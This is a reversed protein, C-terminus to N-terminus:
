PPLMRWHVFLTPHAKAFGKLWKNAKRYSGKLSKLTRRAWNILAGNLLRLVAHLASKHYRGYYNIWGRVKPDCFVAIDQLTKDSRLRVGWKRITENIAKKAKRSIAPTFSTFLKGRKNMAMRPKFTYGLFDFQIEEYKGGPRNSDKCYVIKTKDPHLELGVEALREELQRKVEEAEGKTRCHIVADDAYRAFPSGSHKRAMWLDFAYHLFLNSLIPSVVGGQPTGKERSIEKGDRVMSAKLWREIYLLVWKDEVNWKVAKQLLGHDINDFLGKIDFELVWDHRWCRKRVIGLADHASRGPRYGYSDPHFIPDIKPEIFQKVVMQAIRDGVTPIGLIREGGNKKPIAVALVSPPFYSGSALRNWIKYLNNELDSEFDEISKGDVGGAGGNAKVTKYAQWVMGKTIERFPKPQALTM